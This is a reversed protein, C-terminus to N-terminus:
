GDAGLLASRTYREWLAISHAKGLGDRRRLSLSIELPERFFFLVAPTGRWVTRWFPLTLCARPDKWVWEESPYVRRFVRVGEGRSAAVRPANEWNRSLQPPFVWSGGFMKLLRDNLKVLSGSEWYGTPNDQGYILDDDRCLPLGLLNIVRAVVSTGSRHMGLVVVPRGPEHRGEPLVTNVQDGRARSYYAPRSRNRQRHALPLNAGVGADPASSRFGPLERQGGM